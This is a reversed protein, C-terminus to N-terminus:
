RMQAMMALATRTADAYATGTYRNTGLFHLFRTDADIPEGWFNVYHQPPLVLVDGSENALLLNSMFQESGWESLKAPGIIAEYQQTLDRAKARRNDGAAFGAFGSCGRFYNLTDHGRLKVLAREMVAQVHDSGTLKAGYYELYDDVSLIGKRASVPDGGFAFSQARDIAHNVENVPGITVTDSDLQIVYDTRSGDIVSLLREWTGGRLFGEVDVGAIPIIQPNDCHYNITERDADTLTGDDLIVVRGRGLQTWFSKVAVLYPLLVKTGMMSFIVVGDQKAQIPPTELIPRCVRDHASSYIRTRIRFPLLNIIAQLM